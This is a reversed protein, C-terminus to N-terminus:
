LVTPGNCLVCKCSSMSVAFGLNAAATFSLGKLSSRLQVLRRNLTLGKCTAHAVTVEVEKALVHRYNTMFRGFSAMVRGFSAMFHGFRAMVHGFRAM